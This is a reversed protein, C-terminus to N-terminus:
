KYVKVNKWDDVECQGYVNDGVAVVTGDSKLGITCNDGAYIAVIDKWDEIDCQGDSNDGVAIVTGDKKLGVTYYNGATIAMINKWDDVERQGDFNTGATIVTCDSKLGVTHEGGASIAVIDQWDDVNCQGYANNGVAVVTGDKKLGVTHEDGASIAVIDQWDEIDCQGASNDGVAVVTGDKKLGVTHYEGASIAVIDEWDDVKCQNSFDNGTAVVTGDSKLGVTHSYGSSIGVIDRWKYVDSTTDEDNSIITGNKEVAMFDTITPINFVSNQLNKFDGIKYFINIAEANEGNEMYKIAKDYQFTKYIFPGGFCVGLFAFLICGIKLINKNRQKRKILKQKKNKEEVLKKKAREQEEAVLRQKEKEQEAILKQKKLEEFKINEEKLYYINSVKELVEKERDCNFCVERDKDNPKGCSCQWFDNYVTYVYRFNIHLKECERVYQNYLEGFYKKADVPTPMEELYKCSENRWVSEDTFVVKLVKISINGVINKNTNIAQKDGFTQRKKIDLGVYAVNNLTCLFDKSDDYCDIDLFISKINKSDINKFKIQLVNTNTKTDLLIHYKESYIPCTNMRLINEGTKIIKYRDM